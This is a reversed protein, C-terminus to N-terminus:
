SSCEKPPEFGESGVQDTSRLKGPSKPIIRSFPLGEYSLQYLAGKTLALDHTWIGNLARKASRGLVKKIKKHPALSFFM